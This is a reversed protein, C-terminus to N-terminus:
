PASNSPRKPIRARLEAFKTQLRGRRRHQYATVLSLSLSYALWAALLGPGLGGLVYPLFVDWYFVRLEEWHAVEPTFIAKFNHWVEGFADGFKEGLRPGAETGREHGMMWNGLRLSLAAILPFTLPNGFFTALLAAVINGRVLWAVMASVFFHLGFLPTFSVFVGCAVGRAIRHPSDPIRHLRHKVYQAARGWGGRPWVTEAVVRLLPRRDRRKFVM